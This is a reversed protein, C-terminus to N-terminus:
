VQASSISHYSVLGATLRQQITLVDMKKMNIREKLIDQFFWAVSGVFALQTREFAPYKLLQAQIFADFSLAVVERVFDEKKHELIIPVMSAFFDGPREHKYVHQIVEHFNMGLASYLMDQMAKPSDGSLVKTLFLKGLYAGSGEDGLMFGLSPVRRNISQGDYYASNSGTGLICVLGAERGLLAHAAALLDSFVEVNVCELTKQLLLRVTTCNEVGSCGTGYYTLRDPKQSLQPKLEENLCNILTEPPFYNPNFGRTQIVQHSKNSGNLIIWEIKTTGAEAIIHM